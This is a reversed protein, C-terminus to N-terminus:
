ITKGQWVFCSFHKTFDEKTNEFIGYVASGSGTMSAYVAGLKYMKDKLEKIEPYVSFVVTEFDNKIINKWYTITNSNLLSKLDRRNSEPISNKYAWATNIHIGPHAIVIRYNTLDIKFEELIEGRGYAMCPKNDIFFSCDSGITAAYDKLKNESIDLNFFKNLSKLLFAADASGGGLGAGTPIAKHLHMSVPPLPYGEKLLKYAKTCLNNDSNVDLVIGSCTFSFEEAKIFELSDCLGVPIMLTEIDHFGDDRKRLINLGLNIKANPFFIM